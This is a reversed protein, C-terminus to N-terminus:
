CALVHFIDIDVGEGGLRTLMDLTSSYKKFSHVPLKLQIYHLAVTTAMIM